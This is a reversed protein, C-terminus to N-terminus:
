SSRAVSPLWGLPCTCLTDCSGLVSRGASWILEGATFRCASLPMSAGVTRVVMGMLIFHWICDNLAATSQLLEGHAQSLHPEAWPSLVVSKLLRFVKFAPIPHFVEFQEEWPKGVQQWFQRCLRSFQRCHFEPSLLAVPSEKCVHWSSATCFSLQWMVIGCRRLSLDHMM